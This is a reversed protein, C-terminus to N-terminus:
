ASQTPMLGLRALSTFFGIVAENSIMEGIANLYDGMPYDDVKEPEVFCLLALLELTEDPHEDAIEDFIASLNEKSQAELRKKNEAKVRNLEEDTMDERIALLDPMRKRITMIDTETLWKEVAKKIRNTQRLFESPKCTALNKM